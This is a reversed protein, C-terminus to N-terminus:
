KNVVLKYSNITPTKHEFYSVNKEQEPINIEVEYNSDPKLLIDVRELNVAIQALTINDINAEITFNGENDSKTEFITTQEFTLMDNFTILRVLAESKPGSKQIKGKIKINQSFVNSSLLLFILSLLFVNKKM